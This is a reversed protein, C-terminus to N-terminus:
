KADWVIVKKVVSVSSYKYADLQIFLTTHKVSFSLGSFFFLILIRTFQNGRMVRENESM